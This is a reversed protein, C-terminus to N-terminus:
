VGAPAPVPERGTPEPVGARRRPVAGVTPPTHQAVWTGAAVAFAVPWDIAGLAGMTAVGGYFALKQLSGGPSRAGPAPPAAASARQPGSLTATFFPLRITLTLPTTAPPTAPPTPNGTADPPSPAPVDTSGETPATTSAEAPATRTTRGRKSETM